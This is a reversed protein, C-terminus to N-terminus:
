LAEKPGVKIRWSAAAAEDRQFMIQVENSFYESVINNHSQPQSTSSLLFNDPFITAQGKNPFLFNGRTWSSSVPNVAKRPNTPSSDVASTYIKSNLLCKDHFSIVKMVWEFMVVAFESISSPLSFVFDQKSIYLGSDVLSLSFAQVERSNILVSQASRHESQPAQKHVIDDLICKSEIALAAQNRSGENMECVITSNNNNNNSSTSGPQQAITSSASQGCNIQLGQGGFMLEFFEHWIAAIYGHGTMDLPDQFMHGREIYCDIVHAIVKLLWSDTSKPIEILVIRYAEQYREDAILEQLTSILQNIKVNLSNFTVPFMLFEPCVTDVAPKRM